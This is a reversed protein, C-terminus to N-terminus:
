LPGLSLGVRVGLGSLNVEESVPLEELPDKLKRRVKGGNYYGQVFLASDSGLKFSAGGGVQWAFGGYLRTEKVKTAFNQEKNILLEYGLGGQGFISGKWLGPFNLTLELMLPIIYTNYEVETRITSTVTGDPLVNEAVKSEKRYNKFFFDTGIGIQVAEDVWAGVSGGFAFGAKADSPTFYSARITYHKDGAFSISSVLFFLILISIFVLLVRRKM